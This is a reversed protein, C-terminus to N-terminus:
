MDANRLSVTNFPRGLVVGGNWAIFGGFVALIALYPLVVPVVRALQSVGM